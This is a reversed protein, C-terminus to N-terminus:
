GCSSIPEPKNTQKHNIAINANINKNVNLLKDVLKVSEKKNFFFSQITYLKHNISRWDNESNIFFFCARQFFLDNKLVSVNEKIIVFVHYHSWLLSPCIFDVCLQFSMILCNLNRFFTQRTGFLNLFKKTIILYFVM